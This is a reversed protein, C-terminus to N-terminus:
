EVVIIDHLELRPLRLRLEGKGYTFRPRKHGPEVSVRRPRRATRVIVDLPGLPPVEDYTIVNEVEHPGAVNVLNIALAGNIRNVAVDVYHSGRVEVMPKPFLKAVLSQVFEREDAKRANLYAEGLNLYTAAFWEVFRPFPKAKLHQRSGVATSGNVPSLGM